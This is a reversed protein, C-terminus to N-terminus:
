GELQTFKSEAQQRDHEISREANLNFIITRHWLKVAYFLFLEWLPNIQVMVREHESAEATAVIRVYNEDISEYRVKNKPFINISYGLYCPLIVKLISSRDTQLSSQTVVNRVSTTSLCSIEPLATM